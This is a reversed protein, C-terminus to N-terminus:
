LFIIANFMRGLASILKVMRAIKLMWSLVLGRAGYVAAIFGLASITRWVGTMAPYIAPFVNEGGTSYPM